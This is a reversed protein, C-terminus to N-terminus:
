GFLSTKAKQKSAGDGVRCSKKDKSREYGKYEYQWDGAYVMEWAGLPAKLPLLNAQGDAVQKMTIEEVIAVMPRFLDRFMDVRFDYTEGFGPSAQVEIFWVDLDNDVVFDAGYFAFLNEPVLPRPDKGFTVNAFAAVTTAIAEKIQRRVHEVPDIAIIQNLRVSDNEYHARVLEWLHGSTVRSQEPPRFAHNTLHQPTSSFDTEDYVAGGVRAYGDHYFVMVPDISAVMWYMRLDFKEKQFWVLENCIYTQAIYDNETDAVARAVATKLEASNPGLMEIGKGNNVRVKKLVWPQNMGGGTALKKEFADRDQKEELRYTEPLFYLPRPDPAGGGALTADRAAQQQQQQQQQYERFGALFGDKSEMHFFGPLRSYRQWPQLQRYYNSKKDHRSKYVILAEEVTAALTWENHRFARLVTEYGKSDPPIYVQRWAAVPFRTYSQKQGHVVLDAPPGDYPPKRQILFVRYRWSAFTALAVSNALVLGLILRKGLFSDITSKQKANHKTITTTPSSSSSGSSIAIGTSSGVGADSAPQIRNRIKM